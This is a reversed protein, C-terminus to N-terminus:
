TSPHRPPPEGWRLVRCTRTSPAIAGSTPGGEGAPPGGGRRNLRALGCLPAARTSVTLLVFAAVESAGDRNLADVGEDIAAGIDTQTGTPEDPLDGLLTNTSPADGAFVTQAGDDFTILTVHDDPTLSDALGSLADRARGWRGEEQMSLSTDVILIYDTAQDEIGLTAAIADLNEEATAPLGGVVALLLGVLVAVLVRARQM